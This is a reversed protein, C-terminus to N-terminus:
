KRLHKGVRLVIVWVYKWRPRFEVDGFVEWIEVRFLIISQLNHSTRKATFYNFWKMCWFCDSLIVNKDSRSAGHQAWLGPLANKFFALNLLNRLIYHNQFTAKFLLTSFSHFRQRQGAILAFFEEINEVPLMRKVILLLIYQIPFILSAFFSWIKMSKLAQNGLVKMLFLNPLM